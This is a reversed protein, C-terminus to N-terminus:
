FKEKVSKHITKDRLHFGAGDTVAFTIAMDVSVVVPGYSVICVSVLYLVGYTHHPDHTVAALMGMGYKRIVYDRVSGMTQEKDQSDERFM